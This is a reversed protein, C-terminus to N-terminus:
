PKEKELISAKYSLIGPLDIEIWKLQPPLPLRYPRTDLACAMNVVLDYGAAIHQQIFEDFLYTRAVFSWSNARSFEIANAIQEGREGALSRAYPDNFIADPRESEEARFIAVWRATDSIDRILPEM